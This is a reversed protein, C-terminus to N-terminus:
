LFQCLSVIVRLTFFSYFFVESRTYHLQQLCYVLLLLGMAITCCIANFLLLFIRMSKSPPLSFIRQPQHQQCISVIVIRECCTVKSALYFLSACVPQKSIARFCLDRCHKHHPRRTGFPGRPHCSSSAAGDILLRM